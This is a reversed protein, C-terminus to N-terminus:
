DVIVEDEALSPDATVALARLHFKRVLTKVNRNRLGRMRSISRPHVKLTLTRRTGIQSRLMAVAKDLFIEAFVLHGFAPHYPGALIAAGKELDKEAQLGMRIVPINQKKFLLYIDKVLRVCQELSLPTYRGKAYWRALLSNKLIVTPYIRVSDFPLSAIKAATARSEKGGDGPLGVMMQAGVEMGRANLLYVARETDMATHGRKALQLVRDDMSQVGLEVTSVPVDKLIDLRETDVTDPRTSFRISDVRGTAVYKSSEDLLTQISEKALGLFNGGYFAIQTDKRRTGRYNLFADVAGRLEESTPIRRAFHTIATQDCFACRHPCGAHPIFIPIIFPRESRRM